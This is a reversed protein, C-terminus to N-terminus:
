QKVRKGWFVILGGFCIIGVADIFVDELSCSRGPVFSQHVEDSVAYLFSLLAPYCLLRAPSIAFSGKFARWLLFTLVFYETVHAAKRLLFDYELETKLDPIGSFFFISGAWFFVPFWLKCIKKM